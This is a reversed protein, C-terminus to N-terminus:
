VLSGRHRDGTVADRLGFGVCLSGTGAATGHCSCRRSWSGPRCATPEGVRRPEQRTRKPPVESMLPLVLAPLQSRPTIAILMITTPEISANTSLFGENM